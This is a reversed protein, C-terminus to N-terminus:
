DELWLFASKIILGHRAHHLDAGVGYEAAPESFLQMTCTLGCSNMCATICADLFRNVISARESGTSNKVQSSLVSCESRVPPFRLTAEIMVRQKWAHRGRLNSSIIITHKRVIIM